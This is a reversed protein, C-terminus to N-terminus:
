PMEMQNKDKIAAGSKLLPAAYADAYIYSVGRHEGRVFRIRVLGEPLREYGKSIPRDRRNRYIPYIRAGTNPSPPTTKYGLDERIDDM